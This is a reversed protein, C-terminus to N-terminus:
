GKVTAHYNHNSMFELIASGFGGAPVMRVTVIVDFKKFIKHLLKEDLVEFRM